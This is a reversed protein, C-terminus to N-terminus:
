QAAVIKPSQRRSKRALVSLGLAVWGVLVVCSTALGLYFSRPHYSFVVEHVGPSLEVARYVFNAGKIASRQGDVTAIWGPYFSDLLILSRAAASTTSVVVRNPTYTKVQAQDRHSQASGKTPLETEAAGLSLMRQFPQSEKSAPEVAGLLARPLNETLHYLRLPEPSNIQFTRDLRVRPSTLEITSLVYAVNLGGLFRLREDSDTVRFLEANILQSPLTELRDVPNFISYYIHDKASLFQALTLKRYFYSWAISDSGGLMLAHKSLEQDSWAFIRFHQGKESQQRLYEAAPAREYLENDILPNIWFNNILLDFLIFLSGALLILRQNPRKFFSLVLFAIFAATHIQIHRLANTVITGSITLDCNKLHLVIEQARRLAFGHAFILSTILGAVLALLLVVGLIWARHKRAQKLLGNSSQLECLRILGYGTLVALSFNVILLYKVPYRGFRFLPFHEVLWPYLVSYKGCALSLGLVIIILLSNTLWRRASFLVGFIAILIPFLGFYSSLLYPERNEFLPAAWSGNQTLKFFDGFLRPSIMEVLGLPPLSWGLIVNSDLGGRRGSHKILELTPFIQASALLLGVVIALASAALVRRIPLTRGSASRLYAFFFLLLWIGIAMSSLPELLLFFFGCSFSAAAVRGLSQEKSLRTFVLALLPLFAIAPLINFLNVFSLTVGSLNYVAAAMFAPFFPFSLERCFFYTAVGAGLCHVFFHLEFALEFPLLQFFVQTPYLAMSNPNALLPQGLQIYPNWLPWEWNSYAETVLRKLPYHFFSVDRFFFTKSTFLADAFLVLNIGILLLIWFVDSKIWRSFISV